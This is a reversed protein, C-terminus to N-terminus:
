KLRTTLWEEAKGRVEERADKNPIKELVENVFAQILLLRAADASLGRSRLCFLPEEDLPGTTAGHSCKVDDAYIELEPKTDMEASPSLLLANSLQYGDTKQAERHVHVKGQFVGRSQDDLLSRYFQNSVCHPAQHEMLITTDAHQSGKLLNVGNLSCTINPGRLVAHIQHRTMAGGANMSFCDYVGDRAITVRAMNTQVAEASDEVIRIHHLKANPGVTVDTVMNKWYAGAGRHREIVTLEAGEELIIALRPQQHQGEFGEWLIDEVQGGNGGCSRHIFVEESVMPRKNSLEPSLARALNTYKWEEQKSTPLDQGDLPVPFASM